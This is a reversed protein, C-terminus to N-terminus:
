EDTTLLSDRSLVNLVDNATLLGVQHALQFNRSGRRLVESLLLENRQADFRRLAGRMASVKQIKVRVGHRQELFRALGMFLDEDELKAERWLSEAAQELEPFYNQHRQILDSVQESSLRVRDVGGVELPDLASEALTQASSRASQFAHFLHVVGRALEPHAALERLEDRPVPHGDFVPDSFVEELNVVLTADGAGALSKLDLDFMQAIRILLEAPLPRRNNEILNQYSASIGLREALQAQTLGHRKRLERLRAGFRATSM